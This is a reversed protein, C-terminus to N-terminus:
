DRTALDMFDEFCDKEYQAENALRVNERVHCFNSYDVKGIEAEYVAVIKGPYPNHSDRYRVIIKETLKKTNKKM